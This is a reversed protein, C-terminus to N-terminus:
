CSSPLPLRIRRRSLTAPWFLEDFQLGVDAAARAQGRIYIAIEDRRGINASVIKGLKRDAAQERRVEDRVEGLIHESVPKGPLLLHQHTALKTETALDRGRLNTIPGM